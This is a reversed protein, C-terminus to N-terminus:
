RSARFLRDAVGQWEISQPVAEVWIQKCGQQDLQRLDAYLDHAYAVVNVPAAKWTLGQGDLAPLSHSYIALPTQRASLSQLKKTIDAASLLYMPTKPAYHSELMGSARPAQADATRIPESLVEQLAVRSIQGPRLLVPYGRSLDVITSEIGIASAGGNLICEVYRGLESEAHAATTPSIRGFRNASPAAIGGGFSHLLAQAVPHSPCRLGITDQGGSVTAPIQLNRKVILTLPGPWFMDVLRQAMPPWEAAWERVDTEKALHVIVPHDQPRGKAKYIKAIAETNRADAGVGYVTETPFIVLEGSRLKQAARNINETTAPQIAM